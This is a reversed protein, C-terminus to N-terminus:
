VYVLRNFVQIVRVKRSASKQLKKTVAVDVQGLCLSPPKTGRNRQAYIFELEILPIKDASPCNCDVKVQDSDDRWMRCRCRLVEFLEKLQTDFIKRKEFNVGARQLYVLKKHWSQIKTAISRTPIISFSSHANLYIKSISEAVEFIQKFNIHRRESEM